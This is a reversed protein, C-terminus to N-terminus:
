LRCDVHCASMRELTKHFPQAAVFPAICELGREITVEQRTAFLGPDFDFLDNRNEISVLEHHRNPTACEFIKEGPFEIVAPVNDIVIELATTPLLVCRCPRVHGREAGRDDTEVLDAVDNQISGEQHPIEHAATIWNEDAFTRCGM